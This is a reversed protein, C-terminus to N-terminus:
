PRVAKFWSHDGRHIFLKGHLEGTRVEAWGRGSCPDADFGRGEFSFELRGQTAESEMTCDLDAEVAGFRLAGSGSKEFKIFGPGDLDIYGLDWQEMETIRWVGLFPSKSKPAMVSHVPGAQGQAGALLVAADVCSCSCDGLLAPVDLVLSGSPPPESVGRINVVLVVVAIIVSAVLLFRQLGAYASLRERNGALPLLGM